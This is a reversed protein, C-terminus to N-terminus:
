KGRYKYQVGTRTITWFSLGPKKIEAIDMFGGYTKMPFDTTHHLGLRRESLIEVCASGFMWDNEKLFKQWFSEDENRELAKKFDEIKQKRDHYIRALALDSSLAHLNEKLWKNIDEETLVSSLQKLAEVKNKETILVEDKGVGRLVTRKGSNIKGDGIPYADQLAQALEYTKNSDLSFKFGLNQPVKALNITKAPWPEKQNKRKQYLAEVHVGVFKEPDKHDKLFILKVARRTLKNDGPLILWPTEAVNRAKQQIRYERIEKYDM